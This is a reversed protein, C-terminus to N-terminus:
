ICFFLWLIFFSLQKRSLLKELIDLLLGHGEHGFSQVWSCSYFLFWLECFSLSPLGVASSEITCLNSVLCKKWESSVFFSAFIFHFGFFFPKIKIQFSHMLSSLIHEIESTSCLGFLPNAKFFFSPRLNQSTVSVSFIFNSLKQFSELCFSPYAFFTSFPPTLLIKLSQMERKISLVYYRLANANLKQVATIFFSCANWCCASLTECVAFLSLCRKAQTQLKMWAKNLLLFLCMLSNAWM